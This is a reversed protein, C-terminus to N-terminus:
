GQCKSRGYRKPVFLKKASITFGLYTFTIVNEIKAGGVNFDATSIKNGRNFIMTKTKKINIELKWTQCYEQM